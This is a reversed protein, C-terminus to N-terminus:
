KDYVIVRATALLIVTSGGHAPTPSARDASLQCYIVDSKRLAPAEISPSGCEQTPMSSMSDAARGTAARVGDTYQLVLQTGILMGQM